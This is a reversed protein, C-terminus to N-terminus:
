TWGFFREQMKSSKVTDIVNGQDDEVDVVRHNYKRGGLEDTYAAGMSGKYGLVCSAKLGRQYLERALLKAFPPDGLASYCVDCAITGIYRKKLGKAFMADVVESYSKDAGGTGHDAALEPDGIAGHGAIHIRTGFGCGVDALPQGPSDLYVITWKRKHHTLARNAHSEEYETKFNGAQNENWPIFAVRNQAM